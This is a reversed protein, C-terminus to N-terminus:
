SDYEVVEGTNWRKAEKYADEQNDFVKIPTTYDLRSEVRVYDWEGEFAEILVAYKM